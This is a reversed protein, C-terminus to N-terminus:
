HQWGTSICVMSRPLPFTGMVPWGVQKASSGQWKGSCINFIIITFSIWELRKLKIKEICKEACKFILKVILAM